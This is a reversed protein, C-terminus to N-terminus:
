YTHEYNEFGKQGFIFNHAMKKGRAPLFHSSISKM